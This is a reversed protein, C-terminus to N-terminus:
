LKSFFTNIKKTVYLGFMFLVLGIILELSDFNVLLCNKLMATLSCLM